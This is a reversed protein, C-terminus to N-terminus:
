RVCVCESGWGGRVWVCRAVALLADEHQFELAAVGGLHGGLQATPLQVGRRRPPHPCRRCLPWPPPTPSPCAPPRTTRLAGSAWASLAPSGHLLM